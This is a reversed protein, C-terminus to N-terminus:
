RGARRSVLPHSVMTPDYAGASTISRGSGPWKTSHNKLKLLTARSSGSTRYLSSNLNM